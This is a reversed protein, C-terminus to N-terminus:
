SVTSGLLLVHFQAGCEGASEAWVAGDCERVIRRVVSLGIGSGDSKNDLRQFPEFLQEAREEDFGPGNDAVVIKWHTGARKANINIWVGEGGFRIANIILNQFVQQLRVNNGLVTPLAGVELIADSEEISAQIDARVHELVDNLAVEELEITKGARAFSLLDEILTEMRQASETVMRWYMNVPPTSLVDSSEDILRLYNKITRLPEKLDHSAVYAFREMELQRTVDDDDTIDRCLGFLGTVEGKANLQPFGYSHILRIANDTRVLRLKFEYPAKQEVANHLHMQVRLRDDPHYYTVAETTSPVPSSPDLGYIHFIEESWTMDNTEYNVHFHGTNSVKLAIDLLKKQRSITISQNLKDSIDKGRCYALQGHKRANWEIWCWHDDIHRYRTIFTSSIEDGVVKQLSTTTSELDDPHIYQHEVDRTLEEKTRGLHDAFDQSVMKLRGSLTSICVFEQPDQGFQDLSLPTAKM